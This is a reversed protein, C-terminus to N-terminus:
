ARSWQSIQWEHKKISIVNGVWRARPHLLHAIYRIRWRVMAAAFVYPLRTYSKISNRLNLKRYKFVSNREQLHNSYRLYAFITVCDFHSHKTSICAIFKIRRSMVLILILYIYRLCLVCQMWLCWRMYCVCLIFYEVGGSRMLHGLKQILRVCLWPWKLRSM